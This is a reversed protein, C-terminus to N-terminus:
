SARQFGERAPCVTRCRNCAIVTGGGETATYAIERCAKQRLTVGDLASQPCADLCLSCGDPCCPESVAPDSPWDASALVAGLWTMNGFKENILLTNKGMRGLGALVAAHKLSLIGRGERREANWSDYPESSPVPVASAGERELFLALDFAISDLRHALQNRVLTYPSLTKADLSGSPFRCAFVVVSRCAPFIDAPRFGAPAGTFASASAIGCLDAGLSAAKTKVHDATIVLHIEQRFSSPPRFGSGIPGIAEDRPAPSPM